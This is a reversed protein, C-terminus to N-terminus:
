FIWLWLKKPCYGIEQCVAEPTFTDLALTVLDRCVVSEDGVTGTCVHSSLAMETRNVVSVCQDCTLRSIAPSWTKPDSGLRLSYVPSFSLFAILFKLFM